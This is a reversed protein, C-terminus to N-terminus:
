LSSVSVCFRDNPYFHKEIKSRDGHRTAFKNGSTTWDITNKQGTSLFLDGDMSAKGNGDLNTMLDAYIVITGQQPGDLIQWNDTSGDTSIDLTAIRFNTDSSSTTLDIDFHNTGGSGWKSGKLEIYDTHTDGSNPSTEGPYKGSGPNQNWNSSGVWNNNGANDTWTFTDAQASILLLQL